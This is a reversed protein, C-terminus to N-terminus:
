VKNKGVVLEQKFLYHYYLDFNLFQVISKKLFHFWTYTLIITRMVTEIVIQVEIVDIEKSEFLSLVYFILNGLKM